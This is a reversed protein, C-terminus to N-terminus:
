RAKGQRAVAEMAEKLEQSDGLDVYQPCSVVSREAVSRGHHREYFRELIQNLHLQTLQVEGWEKPLWLCRPLHVAAPGKGSETSRRAGPVLAKEPDTSFVDSWSAGPAAIKTSKM